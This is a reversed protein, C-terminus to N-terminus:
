ERLRFSVAGNTTKSSSVNLEYRKEGDYIVMLATNPPISGLNEAYMVLENRSNGPAIKITFTQPKDTLMRHTALIKDNYILTVTDGDIIGNDYLTVTISDHDVPIERVLQKDRKELVVEKVPEPIKIQPTDIKPPPPPPIVQKVTDKKKDCLAFMEAVNIVRDYIRVEDMDGNLWFPYFEHQLKGFFLDDTNSFNEVYDVAYKLECDVYLKATIGNNTYMVAYWENKNVYPQYPKLITGTGRFNLHISDKLPEGDCGQGETYLADDFRLAYTGSKYNGNGKTLISNAHCVDYYFGTPRVWAFVTITNGLNLSASNPIRMYNDIGNFHYASAPKGFRDATLTANNFVPNNNNGSADQANGSFPYYARLGESLNVQARCVTTIFLLLPLIKKM